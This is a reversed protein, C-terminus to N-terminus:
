DLILFARQPAGHPAEPLPVWTGVLLASARGAAARPALARLPPLPESEFSPPVCRRGGCAALPLPPARHQLAVPRCVARRGDLDRQPRAQSGPLSGRSLRPLGPARPLGRVSGAGYRCVSRSQWDTRCRWGTASRRGCLARPRRDARSLGDLWSGQVDAAGVNHTDHGRAPVPFPPPPLPRCAALARRTTHQRPDPM